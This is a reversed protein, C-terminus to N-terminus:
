SLFVSGHKYIGGGGKSCTAVVFTGSSMPVLLVNMTMDELMVRLVKMGKFLVIISSVPHGHCQWRGGRHLCSWSWSSDEHSWPTMITGSRGVEQGAASVGSAVGFPFASGQEYM